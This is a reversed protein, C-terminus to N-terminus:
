GLRPELLAVRKELWDFAALAGAGVAVMVAGCLLGVLCASGEDLAALPSILVLLAGFVLLTASIVLVAFGFVAGFVSLVFRALRLHLHARRECAACPRASLRDVLDAM